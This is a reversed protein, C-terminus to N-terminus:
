KKLTNGHASLPAACLARFLPCITTRCSWSSPRHKMGASCPTPPLKSVLLAFVITMTSIYFMMLTKHGPFFAGLLLTYLPIKAMCNMFPVAFITAMRARTDSIAKTAMLGPVACGGAFVGGLILPLTSQGHMGFRHLVKDLVFAIRAMYGSDELIAITAFLILFIPVYNLLTNASDVLWLGM